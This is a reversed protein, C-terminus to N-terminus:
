EPARSDQLDGDTAANGSRAFRVLAAPDRHMWSDGHVGGPAIVLSSESHDAAARNAYAERVPVVEDADGHLILTPGRFHKALTMEVDLPDRVLYPPALYSRAMTTISTFTSELILRAPPRARAVAAMVGGGLSRGHYILETGDIAPRGAALDILALTDAVIAEESPSGGCSGYGRYEIVLVNLGADAYPEGQWWFEEALEANGHAYVVLPAPGGAVGRALRLYGHTTGEGHEVEIREVDPLETAALADRSTGPFVLKRQISYLLGHHVAGIALLSQVIM